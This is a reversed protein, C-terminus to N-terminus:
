GISSSHSDGLQSAGSTSARIHRVLEAFFRGVDENDEKENLIERAHKIHYFTAPRGGVPRDREKTLLGFNTLLRELDDWSEDEVLQSARDDGPRRIWHHRLMVRCARQLLKYLQHDKVDSPVIEAAASQQRRGHCDIWELAQEGALTSELNTMQVLQIWGVNPFSPPLRTTEDAILTSIAVSHFSVASIDAERLDLQNISCEAISAAQATGRIVADDVTAGVVELPHLPDAISLSALLLAAINRDGRDLGSASALLLQATGLFRQAQTITLSGIVTSFSVLFDPGLISRRLFKPVERKCVADIAAHALFYNYFESHAFRRYGRRDDNVLFALVLVRNTLLRRIIDNCDDGLAADVFMHLMEEEVSETQNDALDRAAEVLVNFVFEERQEKNMAREVRDGFKSAEREIMAKILHILPAATLFQGEVGGDLTNNGLLDPLRSLFFPRLAYSGPEFLGWDEAHAIHPEQWGRKKLWQKAAAPEVSRLSAVAVQHHQGKLRPINSLLRERGIFTERGALILAGQGEIDEVMQALQAWALDYGNPDGLEDFGDIALQVLGHRVLVPLQDYTVQARMTQLSYAILDQLFSLVRGRSQVHLILPAQVELFEHSRRLALREILITKGVGAPGDILLTRLREGDSRKAVLFENISDLSADLRGNPTTLIGSVPLLLTEDFSGRLLKQQSNAWTRLDAFGKSALFSRYNAHRITEQIEPSSQNVVGSKKEFQLSIQYGNRYMKASIHDATELVKPTKTAVDAFVALEERLQSINPTM